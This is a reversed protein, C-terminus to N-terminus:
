YDGLYVIVNNNGGPAAGNVIKVRGAKFWATDGATIAGDGDLADSFKRATEASVINVLLYGVTGPTDTTGDGDFDFKYQANTAQINTQYNRSADFPNVFKKDIYPGDWGALGGTTDTMLMLQNANGNHRHDPLRGTDQYFQAAATRITGLESVASSLKADALASIIRPTAVAALIAIIALVGIMEVMTFGRVPSM